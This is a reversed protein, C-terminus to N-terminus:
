EGGLRSLLETGILSYDYPSNDDCKKKSVIGDEIWHNLNSYVDRSHLRYPNNIFDGAKLSENNLFMEIMVNKSFDSLLDMLYYFSEKSMKILREGFKSHKRM